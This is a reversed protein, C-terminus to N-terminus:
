LLSLNFRHLLDTQDNMIYIRVKITSQNTKRHIDKIIKLAADFTRGEIFVIHTTHIYPQTRLEIDTQRDTLYKFNRVLAIKIKTYQDKEQHCQTPIQSVKQCNQTRVWLIM